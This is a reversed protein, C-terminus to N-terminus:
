STSVVRCRMSGCSSSAGDDVEGRSAAGRRAARLIAQAAVVLAAPRHDNGSVLEEIAPGSIQDFAGREREQVDRRSRRRKRAM